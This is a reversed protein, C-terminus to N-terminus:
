DMGKLVPDNSSLITTTETGPDFVIVAKGERLQTLVQAIKTELSVEIEGYDTGDRTVFEDVVGHLPEPSLEHYPIKLAVM